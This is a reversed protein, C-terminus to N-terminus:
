YEIRPCAKVRNIEFRYNAVGPKCIEELKNLFDNSVDVQYNRSPMVIKYKGDYVDITIGVKGKSSKIASELQDVWSENLAKLNM